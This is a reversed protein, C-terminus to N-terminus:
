TTFTLRQPLVVSAGVRPVALNLALAFALEKHQFWHTTVCSQAVSVSEGGIGFLARGCLMLPISRVTVGLAFLAQGCCVCLSLVVLVLKAGLREILFGSFFPLIINPFSYIAYLLGFTYDFTAPPFGLYRALLTNLAAPNDYAYYNGFLLMCNCMLVLWRKWLAGTDGALTATDTRQQSDPLLRSSSNCAMDAPAIDADSDDDAQDASKDAADSQQPQM